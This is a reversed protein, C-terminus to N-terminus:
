GCFAPMKVVHDHDQAQSSADRHINRGDKKIHHSSLQCAHMMSFLHNVIEESRKPSMKDAGQSYPLRITLVLVCGCDLSRGSRMPLPCSFYFPVVM